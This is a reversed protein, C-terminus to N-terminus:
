AKSVMDLNVADSSLKLTSNLDRNHYGVLISMEVTIDRGVVRSPVGKQIKNLGIVGLVGIAAICYLM